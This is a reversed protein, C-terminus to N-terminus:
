CIQHTVSAPPNGHPRQATLRSHILTLHSLCPKGRNRQKKKKKCLQQMNKRLQQQQQQEVDASASVLADLNTTAIDLSRVGYSSVSGDGEYLLEGEDDGNAWVWLQEAALRLGLLVPVFGLLQIYGDPVLDGLIIGVLSISVLVTFAVVEGIIVDLTSLDRPHSRARGFLIILICFSDINTAAFAAAAASSITEALLASEASM